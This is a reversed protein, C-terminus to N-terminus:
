QKGGNTCVQSAARLSSLTRALIFVSIHPAGGGGGTWGQRALGRTHGDCEGGGWSKVLDSSLFSVTVGM